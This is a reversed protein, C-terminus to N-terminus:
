EKDNKDKKMRKYGLLLIQENVTAWMAWNSPLDKSPFEIGDYKDFVLLTDEFYFEVEEMPIIGEMVRLAFVNLMYETGVRIELDVPRNTLYMEVRKDVWETAEFDSVSYSGTASYIIKLKSNAQGRQRAYELCSNDEYVLWGNFDEPIADYLRFEMTNNPDPNFVWHEWLERTPMIPDKRRAKILYGRKICHGKGLFSAETIEINSIWYGSNCYPNYSPTGLKSMDASKDMEWYFVKNHTKLYERLEDLTKFRKAM